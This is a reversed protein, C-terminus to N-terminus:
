TKDVSLNEAKVHLYISYLTAIFFGLVFGFLVIVIRQPQYKEDEIIAPDLINFVYEESGEILLLTQTQNKILESFAQKLETLSTGVIQKNLYEISQIAKKKDKTRFHYNIEKIVLDTWIKAIIPSLHKTSVRIFGDDENVILHNLYKKHLKQNSGYQNDNNGNVISNKDQELYISYNLKKEKKDWSKAYILDPVYINPLINNEFFAFSNIVALAELQRSSENNSFGLASLGGFSLSSTARMDNNDESLSLLASSRYLDKLALSFLGLLIALFLSTLLIFLKKKFFAIFIDNLTFAREKM